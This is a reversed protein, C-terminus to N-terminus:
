PTVHGAWRRADVPFVYRHGPRESTCWLREGPREWDLDEPGPPLVGRHTRFRGPAGVHLDGPNGEGASASVWWTTGDVAVGQMRHPQGTHVELPPCRGDADLEPLGTTPDLPYRALRPSTGKRGYEGVVLSLRGEVQGVSLFSWRLGRAARLRLLQPLVHDYGYATFGGTPRRGLTRTGAGHWPLVADLRRRPVRAVDGLRFVRVGARTDAVYVLEGLVAIGGAHVRVGGMSLLGLRRRPSVLLVHGYRFAVPDVVSLRSGLSFLGWRRKAYWSVLLRGGTAAVGQPWWTRHSADRDEWTLGDGAAEGPVQTPRAVRDLVLGALGVRPLRATLDDVLRDRRDTITLAFHRTV